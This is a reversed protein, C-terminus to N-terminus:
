VITGKGCSRRCASLQSIHFSEHTTMLHALVDGVTKLVTPKLLEVAHAQSMAESSATPVAESVRRHGAEIAGLLDGKSPYPAAVDASKTGPAFQVHWERPCQPRLGLLKGAYDTAVALHGLIWVPPNGGPFAPKGLNADDLDAALLRLYNLNFKYLTLEREFM